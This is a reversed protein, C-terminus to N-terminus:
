RRRSRRRSCSMTPCAPGSSTRSARPWSTTTWRGSPARRRISRSASCSTRRWWCARWRSSSARRSTTARSRPSTSSRRRLANVDEASPPPPLGAQRLRRRHPPWLGGRADAPRHLGHDQEARGREGAGSGAGQRDPVAGVDPVERHSLPSLSLVDGDNNFGDGFEDDVFDFMKSPALNIGLLDRVTNDYELKNLRRITVRGAEIPVGGPGIVSSGGAGGTGMGMSGGAMTGTSGGTGPGGRGGTGPTNGGGGPTGTGGAPTCALGGLLLAAALFSCTRGSSGPRALM